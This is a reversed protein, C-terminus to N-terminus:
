FFVPDSASFPLPLRARRPNINHRIFASHIRQGSQGPPYNRIYKTLHLTTTFATNRYPDGDKRLHPPILATIEHLKRQLAELYWRNLLPETSKSPISTAVTQCRDVERQDRQETVQQVLSQLRVQLSFMEDTLTEKSRSITGLYEEMQPTWRMPEVRQYHSATLSTLLFCGLIARMKELIQRDSDEPSRTNCARHDSTMAENPFLYAEKPNSLNSRIDYAVAMAIQTLRSPSSTSLKNVFTDYGWGLYTLVSLLLDPTSQIDGMAKQILLRKLESGRARKEQISPSTVTMIARFLLPKEAQLSEATLDLPLHMFALFPLMRGRFISLRTQEQDPFLKWDGASSSTSTQGPVSLGQEEDVRQKGKAERQRGEIIERLAAPSASNEVVEHLLTNLGDVKAELNAIMAAADSPKQSARKRLSDASCCQKNLRLCRECSDNNGEKVCKSKTKFCHLCAQGYPAARRRGVRSTPISHSSM